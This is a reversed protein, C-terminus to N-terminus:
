PMPRNAWDRYLKTLNGERMTPTTLASRFKRSLAGVLAHALPDISHMYELIAEGAVMREDPSIIRLALARWLAHCMFEECGEDGWYLGADIVKNFVEQVDVSM